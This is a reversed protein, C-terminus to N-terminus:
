NGLLAQDSITIYNNDRIKLSYACPQRITRIDLILWDIKSDFFYVKEWGAYLLKLTPFFDICPFYWQQNDLRQSVVASGQIIQIILLRILYCNFIHATYACLLDPAGHSINLVSEQREALVSMEWNQEIEAKM